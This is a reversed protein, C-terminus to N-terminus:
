SCVLVYMSFHVPNSPSALQVVRGTHIRPEQKNCRHHDVPRTYIYLDWPM